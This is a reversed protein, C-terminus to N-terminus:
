ITENNNQSINIQNIQINQFMCPSNHHHSVWASVNQILDQLEKITFVELFSGARPNENEM